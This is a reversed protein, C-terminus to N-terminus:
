KKRSRGPKGPKRSKGGLDELKEIASKRAATSEGRFQDAIPIQGFAEELNNRTETAEPNLLASAERALNRAQTQNRVGSKLRRKIDSLKDDM